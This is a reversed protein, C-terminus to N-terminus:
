FNDLNKDLESFVGKLQEDVIKLGPSNEILQKQMAPNLQIGKLLQDLSYLMEEPNEAALIRGLAKKIKEKNNMGLQALLSSLQENNQINSWNVQIFKKLKELVVPSFNGMNQLFGVQTNEKVSLNVKPLDSSIMENFSDSKVEISFAKYTLSFILLFLFIKRKM